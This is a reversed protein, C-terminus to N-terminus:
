KGHGGHGHGKGHGENSQGKNGHGNNGHGNGRSEHAEGGQNGNDRGGEYYSRGYYSRGGDRPDYSAARTPPGYPHHKWHQAPVNYIVTPVYRPSVVVFRSRLSTARYWYGDRFVWYFGGYRFCDADGFVPAEVLYVSNELYVQRPAAYYHYYPAPPANGIDVHVSVNTYAHAAFPCSFLAAACALSSLALRVQFGIKM